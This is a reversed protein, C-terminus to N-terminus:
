PMIRFVKLDVDRDPAPSACAIAIYTGNVAFASVVLPPATQHRDCAISRHGLLKGDAFIDFTTSDGNTRAVWLRGIGDLGMGHRRSFQDLKAAKAKAVIEAGSPPTIMITQGDAQKFPVPKGAGASKKQISDIEAASYRRPPVGASFPQGVPAGRATFRQVSYEAPDAVYVQTRSAAYTKLGSVVGGGRGFIAAFQPQSEALLTRGTLTLLSIRRIETVGTVGLIDISDGVLALAIGNPKIDTVVKTAIVKGDHRYLVMNAGQFPFAFVMTDNMYLTGVNRMEGPGSGVRPFRGLVRGREDVTTILEGAPNNGGTFAIHGSASVALSFGRKEPGADGLEPLPVPVLRPLQAPATGAVLVLLSFLRLAIL